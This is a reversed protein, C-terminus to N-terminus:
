SRGGMVVGRSRGGGVRSGMFGPSPAGERSARGRGRLDAAALPGCNERDPLADLLTRAPDACNM